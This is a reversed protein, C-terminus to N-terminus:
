KKYERYVTGDPLTVTRAARCSKMNPTEIWGDSLVKLAAFKVWTRPSKTWEVRARGDKVEIVTGVRGNTYDSAIREVKTGVQIQNGNM